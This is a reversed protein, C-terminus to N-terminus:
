CLNERTSETATVYVYERIANAEVIFQTISFEDILFSILVLIRRSLREFVWKLLM